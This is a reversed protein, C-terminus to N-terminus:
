CYPRRKAIGPRSNDGGGSTSGLLTLDAVQGQQAKGTQRRREMKAAPGISPKAVSSALEVM